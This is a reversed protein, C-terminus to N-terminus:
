WCICLTNMSYMWISCLSLRLILLWYVYIFWMYDIKKMEKGNMCDSAKKTCNDYNSSKKLKLVWCKLLSIKRWHFLIFSSWKSATYLFRMWAKLMSWVTQILGRFGYITDILGPGLLREERRLGEWTGQSKLLKVCCTIQNYFYKFTLLCRPLGPWKFVRSSVLRKIM